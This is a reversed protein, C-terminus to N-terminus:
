EKHGIRELESDKQWLYSLRLETGERMRRFNEMHKLFIPIAPLALIAAGVFYRTIIGYYVPWVVSMATCSVAVYNTVLGIVLAVVLMIFFTRPGVALALGGMCAFGKGGRFSLFVPFMHGLVCAVGGVMGAFEMEPFIHTALKWAAAAKCIDFIAVFLGALKGALLVTNSAGANKSGSSRVDYGKILGIIYSPSICGILYGLAASVSVCVVIDMVNLAESVMM